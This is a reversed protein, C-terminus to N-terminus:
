WIATLLREKATFAIPRWDKVDLTIRRDERRASLVDANFRYLLRVEGPVRAIM